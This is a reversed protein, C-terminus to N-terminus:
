PNKIASIVSNPELGSNDLVQDTNNLTGNYHRKLTTLSTDTDNSNSMVVSTLDKHYLPKACDTDNIGNIKEFKYFRKGNSRYPSFRVGIDVLNKSHVSLQRGVKGLTSKREGLADLYENYARLFNTPAIVWSKKTDMERLVFQTLPISEALNLAADSRMKDYQTKTTGVPCIDTAREVATSVAVLERLRGKTSFKEEPKAMGLALMNFLAGRVKPASQEFTTVWEDESYLKKNHIQDLSEPTIDLCRNQLDPRIIADCISNIIVPVQRNYIKEQDDSYLQRQGLGADKGFTLRALDDSLEPKVAGTNDFALIANNKLTAILNREDKPFKRTSASTPDILDRAAKTLTTKGSDASGYINLVAYPSKGKIAALCWCLFLSQQDVPVNVLDFIEMFDTPEATLDVVLERMAATRVFYIPCDDIIRCGDKGIEVAQWKDNCLDIYVQGEYHGFRLFVAVKHPKDKAYARLTSLADKLNNINAGKLTIKYYHSNLWDAYDESQLPYVKRSNNERIVAFIDGIQDIVFECCMGINELIDTASKRKQNGKGDDYHINIANINATTDVKRAQQTDISNNYSHSYPIGKSNGTPTNEKIKMEGEGKSLKTRM